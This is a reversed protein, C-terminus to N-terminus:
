DVWNKGPAITVNQIAQFASFGMLTSTGALAMGQLPAVSDEIGVVPRLWNTDSVGAEGFSCDTGVFAGTAGGVAVGLLADAKLNAYSSPAM